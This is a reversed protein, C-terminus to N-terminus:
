FQELATLDGERLRAPRAGTSPWPRSQTDVADDVVLGGRADSGTSALASAAL